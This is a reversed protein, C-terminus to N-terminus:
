IVYTNDFKFKKLNKSTDLYKPDNGFQKFLELAEPLTDDTVIKELKDAVKMYVAMPYKPTFFPDPKLIDGKKIAEAEEKEIDIYWLDLEGVGKDCLCDAVTLRSPDIKNVLFRYGIKEAVLCVVPILNPQWINLESSKKSNALLQEIQTNTFLDNYSM